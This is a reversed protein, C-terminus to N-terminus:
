HLRFLHQHLRLRHVLEEETRVLQDSEPEPLLRDRRWRLYALTALVGVGCLGALLAVTRRVGIREALAGALLGGLPATGYLLLTYVGMVRGRFDDSTLLQLRANATALFLVSGFGLAITLTVLLLWGVFLSLSFFVLTFVVAGALVHLRANMGTYDVVLSGVLSGAGLAASLLGLGMPGSALLSRAILPLLVGLNYGFLGLAALLLVIMAIDATGLTYTVGSKVQRIIAERPPAALPYMRQEDVLLLAAIVALFSAANLYFCAMEGIAAVLLGALVPGAVKTANFLTTWLESANCLDDKDPGVLEGIFAQSTPTDLAEITGAAASLVYILWLEIAGMSVLIGLVLAQVLMAAQTFLLVPRRPLRDALAGGFLSLLLIPAAEAMVMAGLALGSSTLDLVLWTLALMQLRTGLSSVLMGLWYLRFNRNGLAGLAQVWSTRRQTRTDAHM